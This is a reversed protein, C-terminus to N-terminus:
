IVPAYDSKLVFPKLKINYQEFTINNERIKGPPNLCLHVDSKPLSSQADM